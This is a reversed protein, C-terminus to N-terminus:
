LPIRMQLHGFFFLKMFFMKPASFGFFDLYRVLGTSLDGGGLGHMSPIKKMKVKGLLPKKDTKLNLPM